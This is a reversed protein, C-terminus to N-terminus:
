TASPRAPRLDDAAGAGYRRDVAPSKCRSAAKKSTSCKCGLGRALIGSLAFQPTMLLRLSGSSAESGGTQAIRGPAVPDSAIVERLVYRAAALQVPDVKGTLDRDLWEIVQVVARAYRGGAPTLSVM